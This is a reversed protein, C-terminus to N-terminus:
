PVGKCIHSSKNAHMDIHVKAASQILHTLSQQAHHLVPRKTMKYSTEKQQLNREPQRQDLVSNALCEHTGKIKTLALKHRQYFENFKFSGYLSSKM